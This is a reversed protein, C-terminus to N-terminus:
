GRWNGIGGWFFELNRRGPIKNLKNFLRRMEMMGGRQNAAQGIKKAQPELKAIQTKSNSAYAACLRNLISLAAEEDEENFNIAEPLSAGLRNLAKAIAGLEDWGNDKFAVRLPEISRRDGIEGLAYAAGERVIWHEDGLAIILPDVAQNGIKVLAEVASRREEDSGVELLTLLSEVAPVGFSIMKEWNRKAVWYWIETEDHDPEWGLKVLARAAYERLSNGTKSHKIMALLPKIAQADGMEGLAECALKRVELEKAKLKAILPNIAPSGINVLAKVITKETSYKGVGIAAILPMAAPAGIKGLAEASDERLVVWPENILINVLPEAAQSDGIKGLTQVVIRKMKNDSDKLAAVLFEVARPDGIEGLARAAAERVLPNLDKLAAVLPEVARPDGIEGLASIAAERVFSDLNQSSILPEVARLDGIEGLADAAAKRIDSDKTYSLAKILGSVDKKAKMKEVNPPGFLSM